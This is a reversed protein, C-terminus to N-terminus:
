RSNAGPKPRKVGPGVKQAQLHGDNAASGPGTTLPAPLEQGPQREQPWAPNATVAAPGECGLDAAPAVSAGPSGKPTWLGSGELSSPAESTRWRVGNMRSHIQCVSMPSGQKGLGPAWLHKLAPSLPQLPCSDGRCSEQAAPSQLNLLHAEQLQWQSPPSDAEAM